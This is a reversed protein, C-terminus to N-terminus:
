HQHHIWCKATISEYVIYIRIPTITQIIVALCRTKGAGTPGGEEYSSFVHYVHSMNANHNVQHELDSRVASPGTRTREVVDDDDDDDDYDDDDGDGRDDDDDDDDDDDGDDDDDIFIKLSYLWHIYFNLPPPVILGARLSSRWHIYFNLPPPLILGKKFIKM